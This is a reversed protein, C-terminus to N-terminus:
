TILGYKNKLIGVLNNLITLYNSATASTYSMNVTTTSLTQKIQPTAGFFGIKSTTSSNCLHLSSYGGLYCEGFWFTSSGLGMKVGSQSYTNPVLTGGTNLTLTYPTTSTASSYLTTIKPTTQGSPETWLAGNADVGVAQTMASTKATPRVGGLTTSSAIPLSYEGGGGPTTWLSGDADVGVAQTMESTKATPGGPRGIRCIAVYTGSEKAVLVRDGSAFHEDRNCTFKKTGSTDGDISLGIGGTSVSTVTAFYHTKGAKAIEDSMRKYLSEFPNNNM